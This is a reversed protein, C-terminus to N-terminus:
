CVTRSASIPRSARSTPRAVVATSAASTPNVSHPNGFVNSAILGMHERLQSSAYLGGGTYGLYVHGGRDLRAFESARVADLADTQAYGVHKRRFAAEAEQQRARSDGARTDAASMAVWTVGDAPPTRAARRGTGSPM